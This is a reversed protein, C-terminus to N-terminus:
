STDDVWYFDKHRLMLYSLYISLYFSLIPYSLILHSSILHSSILYSRLFSLFFSFSLFPFFLFSFSLFPFFLFSFSLFPFFLFSFSLFPFFLFSFSLFPFFLFYFFVFSIFFSRFFSLFFSRYIYRLGFNFLVEFSNRTVYCGTPTHLHWSTIAGVTGLGGGVLGVGSLVYFPLCLSCLEGPRKRACGGTLAFPWQLICIVHLHFSM